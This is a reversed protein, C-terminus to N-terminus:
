IQEVELDACANTIIAYPMIKTTNNLKSNHKIIFHFYGLKTMLMAGIIMIWQIERRRLGVQNHSDM